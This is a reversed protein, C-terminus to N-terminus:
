CFTDTGNTTKTGGVFAAGRSYRGEEYYGLFQTLAADFMKAAEDNQTSLPLGASAWGAVDRWAEHMM